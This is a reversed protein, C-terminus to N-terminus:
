EKRHRTPLQGALGATVLTADAPNNQAYLTGFAAIVLSTRASSRFILKGGARVNIVRLTGFRDPDSPDIQEFDVGQPRWLLTVAPGVAYWTSLGGLWELDAHLESGPVPLGSADTNPFRYRGGAEFYGSWYGNGLGGSRGVSLFGGVDTTGEGLNTLRYRTKDTAQGLRLEGGVSLSLPAGVLEDVLLGKVRTTVIGLGQSTDCGHADLATLVTTCVAGDKRNATVMSYPLQLEVDLRERVGYGLILQATAKELGEDVDIVADPDFSGGSLALRGIREYSAGAYASVEGEPLTWPGSGAFASAVLFVFM